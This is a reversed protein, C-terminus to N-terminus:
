DTITEGAAEDADAALRMEIAKKIFEAETEDDVEQLLTHLGDCLGVSMTEDTM